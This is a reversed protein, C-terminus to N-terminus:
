PRNEVRVQQEIMKLYDSVDAAFPYNPKKLLKEFTARAKPYDRVAIQVQGLVFLAGDGYSSDGYEAVFKELVKLQEPNKVVGVGIFFYTPESHDRIFQLAQADLGDPKVIELELPKSWVSDKYDLSTLRLHLRYTGPSPFTKNLRYILGDTKKIQEGPQFVHAAGFVDLTFLSVPVRQSGDPRDIFLNLYSAGFELVMHGVLPTRTNNKLTIVLPIPELEVYRTKPTELTLTFDQFRGYPQASVRACNLGIMLVVALLLVHRRFKMM